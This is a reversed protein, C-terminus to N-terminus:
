LTSFIGACCISQWLSLNINIIFTILILHKEEDTNSLPGKLTTLLHMLLSVPCCNATLITSTAWNVDLGPSLVSPLLDCGSELRGSARQLKWNSMFVGPNMLKHCLKLCGCQTIYLPSTLHVKVLRLLYLYLKQQDEESKQGCLCINFVRNM